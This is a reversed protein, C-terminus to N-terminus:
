CCTYGTAVAVPRNAAVAPTVTRVTAKQSSKRGAKADINTALKMACKPRSVETTRLHVFTSPNPRNANASINIIMPASKRYGSDPLTPAM